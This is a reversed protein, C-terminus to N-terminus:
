ESEREPLELSRQLTRAPAFRNSRNLQVGGRLDPVLRFWEMWVEYYRLLLKTSGLHDFENPLLQFGCVLGESESV